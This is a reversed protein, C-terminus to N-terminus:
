AFNITSGNKMAPPQLTDEEISHGGYVLTYELLFLSSPLFQLPIGGRWKGKGMKGKWGNMGERVGNALDLWYRERALFALSPSFISRDPHFHVLLSIFLFCIYPVPSDMQNGYDERYPVKLRLVPVTSDILKISKLLCFYEYVFPIM